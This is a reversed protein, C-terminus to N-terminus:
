EVVVTARLKSSNIEKNPYYYLRYHHTEGVSIEWPRGLKVIGDESALNGVYDIRYGEDQRVLRWSVNALESGKIGSLEKFVLTYSTKLALGEPYVVEFELYESKLYDSDLLVSKNIGEIHTNGFLLLERDGELKAIYDNSGRERKMELFYLGGIILPVALAVIVALIFGERDKMM